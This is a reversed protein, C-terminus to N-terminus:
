CEGIDGPAIDPEKCREVNLDAATDVSFGAAVIAARFADMLHDIDGDGEVEIVSRYVLDGVNETREIRIVSSPKNDIM